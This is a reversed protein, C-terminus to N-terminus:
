QTEEKNFSLYFYSDKRKDGNNTIYSSGDPSLVGDSCSIYPTNDGMTVVIGNYKKDKCDKSDYYHNCGSLVLLSILLLFKM